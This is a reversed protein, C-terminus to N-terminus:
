IRQSNWRLHAQRDVLVHRDVGVHRELSPGSSVSRVAATVGRWGASQQRESELRRRSRSTKPMRTYMVMGMGRRTMLRLIQHSFRPGHVEAGGAQPTRMPFRVLLLQISRSSHATWRVYKIATRTARTGRTKTRGARTSNFCRVRELAVCMNNSNMRPEYQRALVMLRSKYDLVPRDRRRQRSTTRALLRRSIGLAVTTAAISPPPTMAKWPCQTTAFRNQGM